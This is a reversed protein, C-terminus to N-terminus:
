SLVITKVSGNADGKVAFRPREGRKGIYITFPTIDGSTSIIIQPHNKVGGPMIMTKKDGIELGLQIGSPIPHKGLIQDQLPQWANKKGDTVTQYSAFQLSHESLSLGLISPQLMAHEEALTLLQALENAFAEVQRHDNRGISLIAVGTIISIIFLVVLIEILTFGNRLAKASM